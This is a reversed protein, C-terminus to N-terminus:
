LIGKIFNLFPNLREEITAFLDCIKGPLLSAISSQETEQKVENM